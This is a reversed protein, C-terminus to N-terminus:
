ENVEIDYFDKVIGIDGYKDFTARIIETIRESTDGNGFPNTMTKVKERFDVSVAKKMAEIIAESRPECCIVSDPM